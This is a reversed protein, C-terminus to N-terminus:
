LAGWNFLGALRVFSNTVMLVGVVVIFAAGIRSITPM